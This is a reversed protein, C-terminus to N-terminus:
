QLTALRLDALTRSGTLFMTWRLQEQLIAIKEIVADTSKLAPALFPQALATMTAGLRICRGIDLGHRIGGSGILELEPCAKHVAPLLDITDMGWDIFPAAIARERESDNRDLEISAWSTGGRGAIEVWKIGAQMLKKASSPGIGAGVEKVIVPVELRCACNEIAELVHNWDRDGDPQILEQLPNLHIILANAQVSEVARRALGLGHQQLQTAGLNSLLIASPAWRRMDQQLGQELAARQSGLALPIQCAQAAEALHQNIREGNECGGTMAGILLPAAVIQGLFRSSLTVDTLAMQPLPIPEFCVRDFGSSLPAQHKPKLALAIHDTKRTRIDTM